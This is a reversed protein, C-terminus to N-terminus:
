DRFIKMELIRMAVRDKMVYERALHAKLNEVHSKVVSSVLMDNTCLIIFDGYGNSTYNACHDDDCRQFELSM